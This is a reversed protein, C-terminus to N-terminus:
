KACKSRNFNDEDGRDRERKLPEKMTIDDNFNGNVNIDPYMQDRYKEILIGLEKTDESVSLLWCDACLNPTYEPSDCGRCGAKYMTQVNSYKRNTVVDDIADPLVIQEGLGKQIQEMIARTGKLSPHNEEYEIEDLEIFKINPLAKIKTHLYEAKATDTPGYTPVIPLVVTVNIENTLKEIKEVEKKVTYVFDEASETKTIENNGAYLVVEDHKDDYPIANCLQGYGAGSMCAVDTTLALQNVNRLSSDAYIKKRSKIPTRLKKLEEFRLRLPCDKGHKVGCLYCMKQMGEYIINFRAGEVEVSTGLDIKGGNGDDHTVKISRHGNLIRTGGNFQPRTQMVVEVGEMENFCRDFVGHPIDRYQFGYADFITIFTGENRRGNFYSTRNKNQRRYKPNLKLDFGRVKITKNIYRQYDASEIKFLGSGKHHMERVIKLCDEEHDKEVAHIIENKDVPKCVWELRRTCIEMYMIDERPMDTNSDTENEM